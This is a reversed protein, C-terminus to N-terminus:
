RLHNIVASTDRSGSQVLFMDFSGLTAHALRYTAQGLQADQAARYRLSFSDTHPAPPDQTVDTLTLDLASAGTRKLRFTTGIYPRFTAATVGGLDLTRPSSFLRPGLLGATAGGLVAAAGAGTILTRRSITM